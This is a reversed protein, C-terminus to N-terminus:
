RWTFPNSLRRGFINYFSFFCFSIPISWDSSSDLLVASEILNPNTLTKRRYFKSFTSESAWHGQNRIVQIFVGVSAAKSAAAGRTSHASFISTDIGAEKLQDKIWRGITSCTVPSHPKNSGIFVGSNNLSSRLRTTRELYFRLCAVPCILPNEWEDLSYRMLPGSRQSKRLVGLNFFVKNASFSVSDLQISNLESCRLVTTLALLTVTKRALPILSIPRGDTSIFHNIGVSPDCTANYKPIPPKCQYIGKMMQVVLPHKRVDKLGSATLNLTSSLM